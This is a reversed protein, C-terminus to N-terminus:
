RLWRILRDSSTVEIKLEPLKPIILSHDKTDCNQLASVLQEEVGIKRLMDEKGIILLCTCRCLYDFDDGFAGYWFLDENDDPYKPLPSAKSCLQELIM